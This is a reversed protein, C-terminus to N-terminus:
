VLKTKGPMAVPEVPMSGFEYQLPGLQEISKMLGDWTVLKGTYTSMRGMIGMLSSKTMFDGDNIPKGARISAFLADHEKQYMDAKGQSRYRWPKAGTITHKMIDAVGKTGFVYDNIDQHCGAQQRCRSFLKVGNKYEFTVAHHDFINGFEPATRVQRGGTGSARVPYENQMAWAMKDLSHVHQEVIHDGSLWTFYLWNRIQWEMDSMESTRAKSWLLGTDYSTQMAVIEGIDGDHIRQM